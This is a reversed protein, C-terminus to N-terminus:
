RTNMVVRGIVDKEAIAFTGVGNRNLTVAGAGQDWAEVRGLYVEGSTHRYAVIQGPAFSDALKYVLVRSGAPLEPEMSAMPVTYVSAVSTRIGVMLIMAVGLGIGSRILLRRGRGTKRESPKTM